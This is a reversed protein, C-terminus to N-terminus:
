TQMKKWFYANKWRQEIQYFYLRMQLYQEYQQAIAQQYARFDSINGQLRQGAYEAALIGNGLAKIIGQSTIPDYATAADGVALWDTGAMKDLRFSPAPFGRLQTDVPKLGQVLQSTNPTTHLLKLWHELRNLGQDKIIKADTYLAVLVLDNPLRAAYWWGYSAAELHTLKSIIAQSDDLGFRLGLCILPSSKIKQSGQATAFVSRTGSADIVIDTNIKQTQGRTEILLQHNTHVTPLSQKFTSNTELVVGTLQAQQALFQNFRRRDLHWGHGHPSLLSDNYGRRDDGWYSCSGYCPEHGQDIFAQLIGLSQFLKNTEPPISEGIRFKEYQGSELLLVKKVGLQALKLACASGAPGGGIIVVQYHPLSPLLSRITLNFHYLVM